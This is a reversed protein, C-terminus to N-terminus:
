NIIRQFHKLVSNPIVRLCIQILANVAQQISIAVGDQGQRYLTDALTQAAHSDPLQNLAKAGAWRVYNKM